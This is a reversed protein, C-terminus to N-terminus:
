VHNEQNNLLKTKNSLQKKLKINEIQLLLLPSLQAKGIGDETVSKSDQNLGLKSRLSSVERKLHKVQQTLESNEKSLKIYTETSVGKDIPNIAPIITSQEHDTQTAPLNSPVEIQIPHARNYAQVAIKISRIEQERKQLAIHLQALQDNKAQMAQRQAKNAETQRRLATAMCDITSQSAKNPTFGLTLLKNKVEVEKRLALIISIMEDRTTSSTIKAAVLDQQQVGDDLSTRVDTADCYTQVIAERRTPVAQVTANVAHLRALRQQQVEKRLRECEMIAKSYEKKLLTTDLTNATETISNETNSQMDKLGSISLPRNPLTKEYIGTSIPGYKTGPIQASIRNTNGAPPFNKNFSNASPEPYDPQSLLRPSRPHPPSGPNGQAPIIPHLNAVSSRAVPGYEDPLFLGLADSFAVSTRDSLTSIGTIASGIDVCPDTLTSANGRAYYQLDDIEPSAISRPNINFLECLIIVIPKEKSNLEGAPAKKDVEEALAIARSIASEDYEFSNVLLEIAYTNRSMVAHDLHSYGNYDIHSPFHHVISLLVDNCGHRILYMLIDSDDTFRYSAEAQLIEEMIEIHKANYAYIAAPIGNPDQQGAEYPVLKKVIDIYGSQAAVMLATLGQENHLTCCQELNQAIYDLNRANVAEFWEAQM